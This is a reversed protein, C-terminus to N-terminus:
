PRVLRFFKHGSGPLEICNTEPAFPVNTWVPNNLSETAQLQMGLSTDFWCVRVNNGLKTISTLFLPNFEHAGMDFAAIGDRNGDLPRPTGGYDTGIDTLTTGADICPSGARLRFDGGAQDVFMPAATINGTGVPPLPTTCTYSPVGLGAVYYYNSNNPSVGGFNGYVICNIVSGVFVGGGNYAVNGFVTCNTLDSAFAGGGAGPSAATNGSLLCNKLRSRSVGGGYASGEGDDHARNQTLLCRDMTCDYAGGGEGSEYAINSFLTVRLLTSYAAGGGYYGKNEQIVCADAQGGSIGGGFGASNAVIVCNSVAAGSECFVGGGYGEIPGGNSFYPWLTAGNTLTFGTLRAGNTLYVCRIAAPGSGYNESPMQYGQIVTVRPGNVSRLVLGKTVAVRNTLRGYAVRGGSAYVGNTAVIEDGAEAVDIADQITHAATAWTQYPSAPSPSGQWVLLPLKYEFAGMDFAAVGDANGDLPHPRADLDNTVTASLNTGTDICPSGARLRYNGAAADVFAPENTINGTGNTPLPTTCSFEVSCFPSYNSGDPNLYSICNTLKCQLTAPAGTGDPRNRNAVITCNVLTSGEAAPAYNSVNSVLVSNYATCFSLAGGVGTSNNIVLCNFLTSEQAAGGEYGSYNFAVTSNYIRGGSVGGGFGDGDSDEARNGVILCNTLVAGPACLAGAGIPNNGNTLTFGSLTAGNVLYACRLRDLIGAGAIITETPGNESRVKVAKDIVIRSPAADGISRGGTAYVGNTVVIEDGATAADVADQINTAASAWAAYPPTPSPNNQWVYLTAGSCVWGNLWALVLLTMPIRGTSRTSKM